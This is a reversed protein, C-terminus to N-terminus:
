GINHRITRPVVLEKLVPGTHSLQFSALRLTHVRNTHYTYLVLFYWVIYWFIGFCFYWPRGARGAKTNQINRPYRPYIKSINPYIKPIHKTYKNSFSVRITIFNVVCQLPAEPPRALMHNQLTIGFMYWFFTCIGFCIGFM